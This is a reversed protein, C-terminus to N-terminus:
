GGYHRARTHREGAEFVDIPDGGVAVSGQDVPLLPDGLGAGLLGLLVAEAEVVSAKRARKKSTWASIM